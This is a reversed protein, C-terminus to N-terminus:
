AEETWKKVHRQIIPLEPNHKILKLLGEVASYDIGIIKARNFYASLKRDQTKTRRPSAAVWYLAHVLATKHKGELRLVNALDESVSADLALTQLRTFHSRSAHKLYHLKQEHFLKWAKDYQRAELAALAEHKSTAAFGLYDHKWLEKIAHKQYAQFDAEDMEVLAQLETKEEPVHERSLRKRFFDFIGM